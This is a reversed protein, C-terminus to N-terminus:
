PSHHANQEDQQLLYEIEDLAIGRARLLPYTLRALERYIEAIQEDASRLARLHAAITGVDARVLPGTLAAPIGQARLNTVTGALLGNLAQDAAAREAGLSLLLREAAAYLTVTYNSTLVLAAHYLVKEGPSIILVQGDLATVLDRLWGVLREDQAELAFTSGPLGILASEVDAVPYAPHLSGVMLGREALPALVRADLAGSTHVVASGTFRSEALTQAMASIADDAVTLLVLDGRLDNLSEVAEANM